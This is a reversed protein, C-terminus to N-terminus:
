KIKYGYFHVMIGPCLYGHHGANYIDQVLVNPITKYEDEIRDLAELAEIGKGYGIYQIIKDRVIEFDNMKDM